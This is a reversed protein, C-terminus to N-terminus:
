TNVQVANRVSGRCSIELTPRAHDTEDCIQCVSSTPRFLVSYSFSIIENRILQIFKQTMLVTGSFYSEKNVYKCFFTFNLSIYVLSPTCSKLFLKLSM